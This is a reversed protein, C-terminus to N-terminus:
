TAVGRSSAHCRRQLTVNSTPSPRQPTVLYRRSQQDLPPSPVTFDSIQSVARAASLTAQHSPGQTRLPRDRVSRKDIRVQRNENELFVYVQCSTLGTVSGSHGEYKGRVVDVQQGIVLHPIPLQERPTPPPTEPTELSKQSIRIEQGNPLRLYVQKSTFRLITGQSGEYKGRYIHVWRGIQSRQAM